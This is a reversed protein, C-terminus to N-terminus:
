RGREGRGTGEVRQIKAGPWSEVLSLNQAPLFSEIDNEPCGSGLALGPLKEGLIFGILAGLDARRTRM